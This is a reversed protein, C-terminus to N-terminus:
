PAKDIVMKLSCDEGGDERAGEFGFLGAAPERAKVPAARDQSIRGMGTPSYSLQSLAQIANLLDGTRDQDAGGGSSGRKGQDGRSKEPKARSNWKAANTSFLCFGNYPAVRRLGVQYPFELRSFIAQIRLLFIWFRSFSPIQARERRAFGGHRM